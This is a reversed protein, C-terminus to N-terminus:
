LGWPYTSRTKCYEGSSSLIPALNFIIKESDETIFPENIIVIYNSDTVNAIDYDLDYLCNCNCPQSIGEKESIMITDGSISAVAYVQDPCCNFAANIHKIHLTSNIRQYQICDQNSSDTAKIGTKCGSKTVSIQNQVSPGTSDKKCGIINTISIVGIILIFGLIFSRIPNLKKM